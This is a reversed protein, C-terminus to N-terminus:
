LKFRLITSLYGGSSYNKNDETTTIEFLLSLRESCRFESGMVMTFCPDVRTKVKQLQTMNDEETITHVATATPTVRYTFLNERVHSNFNVTAGAGMGFFFLVKKEKFVPGRFKYVLHSNVHICNRRYTLDLQRYVFETAPVPQQPDYNSYRNSTRSTTGALLSLRWELREPVNNRQNGPVVTKALRVGVSASMFIDPHGRRNWDIRPVGRYFTDISYDTNPTRIFKKWEDTEMDTESIHLNLMVDINDFFKKKQALALQCCLLLLTAAVIRM